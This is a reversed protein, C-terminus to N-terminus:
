DASLRGKGRHKKEFGEALIPDDITINAERLLKELLAAMAPQTVRERLSQELEGRADAFRHDAAPLEEELKILHYTQGLRVASSVEGPQLAFATKRFLAPLEEDEVSFPDLLGQNQAGAVNASYRGALEGFDEGARLREKVRAVQALTALQIHRVRVRKGYVRQFEQRLQGETFTQQSEIMKRLYANRRTITDLEERSMNRDALVTALLREAAKHDPTEPASSSLPGTLSKLVLDYELDVDARTVTLGRKTAAMAAVQLGLLQELIEVGRSRLLLGVVRRRAIPQGNVTAITQPHPAGAQVASGRPSFGAARTHDGDTSSRPEDYFETWATAVSGAPTRDGAVCGGLLLACVVATRRCADKRRRIMQPNM